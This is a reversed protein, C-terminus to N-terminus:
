LVQLDDGHLEHLLGLMAMPVDDADLAEAQLRELRAVADWDIDALPTDGDCYAEDDDYVEAM